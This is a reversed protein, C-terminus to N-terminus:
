LGIVRIGKSLVYDGGKPTVVFLENLKLQTMATKMSATVKPQATYKIEYGVRRNGEEFYLDIEAEGYTSWFYPTGTHRRIIQEIAFGEWSAGVKPHVNTEKLDNLGLLAHLLGSDRIYFKPSKLQRSSINAHYPPLLRVMFTDSLIDVWSKITKDNVGMSKGLESYNLTQGHYHAAMQWFRYLSAAPIRLNLSPLDRELFTRLFAERWQYSLANSTALYSRPFGGRNWLREIEPKPLEDIGFGQVEVNAIRGALSEAGEKIFAGAASGLILFRCPLPKRDSLPRLIKLLDLNHQIEDIIVLGKLGELALQPDQLRALDRPIELDFYHLRDKPYDKAIIQALTTKGSQRPGTLAVVAFQKLKRTIEKHLSERSIQKM